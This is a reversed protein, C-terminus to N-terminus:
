PRRDGKSDAPAAKKPTAAAKGDAPRAGGAPAAAPAPLGSNSLIDIAREIPIHAIGAKRDVWGYGSLKSLEEEKMKALETAPDSQLRPEPFGGPDGAFRPPALARLSTEENSLDIIVLALIAEVLVGVAVLALAFAVLRSVRLTNAEHATRTEGTPGGQPAYDNV